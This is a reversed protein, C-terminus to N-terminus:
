IKTGDPFEFHAVYRAGLAAAIADLERDRFSHRHIRQSFNSPSIGISRAIDAQSIGAYAAATAISRAQDTM